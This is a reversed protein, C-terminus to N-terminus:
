YKRVGRWAWGGGAVGVEEGGEVEAEGAEFVPHQHARHVGPQLLRLAAKLPQRGVIRLPHAAPHPHDDGPANRGVLLAAKAGLQGRGLLGILVPQDGVRHVRGIRVHLDAHLDQVHARQRGVRRAHRGRRHLRADRGVRRLRQVLGADLLLQGVKGVAGHEGALRPVVPHLDDARRAVQQGGKQHLLGVQAGVGPAARELVAHAEGHLHHAPHARRHPRIEDQDEADGRHVHEFAPQGPVLDHRQRARHFRGAGVDQARVEAPVLGRHGGDGGHHRARRKRRDGPPQALRHRHRHDGAVADVHGLHGFRHQRAAIRVQHRHRPRHQGVGFPHVLRAFAALISILVQM